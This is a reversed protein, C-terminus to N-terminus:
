MAKKAVIFVAEKKSPQWQHDIEFGADTIIAELEKKKLINVFPILGFFRGIPLLATWFAKGDGICGTSSVFVGGPNLLQYVRAVVTEPNELM